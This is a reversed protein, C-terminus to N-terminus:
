PVYACSPDAALYDGTLAFARARSGGCVFRYECRGCKGKLLEPSRLQRFLPSDRYINELPRHRVSGASIQLFGSPYVEGTHNIFCFGNGDNVGRMSPARGEAGGAASFGAGTLQWRPEAPAAARVGREAEIVVRRYHQAAITRVHFSSHKGFEALWSLVRETEAASLMQDPRGRGTPVLFFLTWVDSWQAACEAIAPLDAVNHRTVTTGVQILFGMDAAERLIILTRDYSGRVRRFSDHIASTSGDLSVHLMHTGTAKVRELARRTV